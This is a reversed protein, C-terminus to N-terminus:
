SSDFSQIIQCENQYLYTMLDNATDPNCHSENQSTLEQVVQLTSIRATHVPFAVPFKESKTVLEELTVRPPRKVEALSPLYKELLEEMSKEHEEAKGQEEVSGERKEKGQEEM